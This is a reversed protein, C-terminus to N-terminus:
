IQIELVHPGDYSYGGHNWTAVRPGIRDQGDIPRISITNTGQDLEQKLTWVGWALRGLRYDVLVRFSKRNIEIEVAVPPPSGYAIGRLIHYPNSSARSQVSTLIAIPPPSEISNLTGFQDRIVYANKMWHGDDPADQVEISRLWKVSHNATYGGVILRVPGGHRSPLPVGNMMDAIITSDCLVRNAPLSRRYSTIDASPQDDAGSFIVHQFPGLRIGTAALVDKLRVGDWVATSIAGFGWPIGETSPEFAARANGACQLTIVASTRPLDQLESLSLRASSGIELRYDDPEIIPVNAHQRVFFLDNKTIPDCLADTPTEFALQSIRILASENRSRSPDSNTM